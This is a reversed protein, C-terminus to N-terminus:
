IREESNVSAVSVLKITLLELRRLHSGPKPRVMESMTPSKSYDSPPWVIVGDRLEIEELGTPMKHL